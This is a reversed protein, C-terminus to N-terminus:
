LEELAAAVDWKQTKIYDREMIWERAEPSAACIDKMICGSYKDCSTLNMPFNAEHICKDLLLTWWIANTRWEELRADSYAMYERQFRESPKLTKQFGVKNVICNQKGIGWSYGMFQNSLDLPNTRRKSTKHDVPAIISGNIEAVLDIKFSYIIQIDKDEHLLKSGVEEVALAIWPENAYYKTYEHFQYIVSEVEDVPLSMKAGFFPAAKGTIYRVIDEKETFLDFLEAEILQNSTDGKQNLCKGVMGYYLEMCKHLLDGRELAEAKEPPALNEIFTLQTKRACSQISNLIQSDINIIRKM